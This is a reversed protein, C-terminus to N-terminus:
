RPARRPRGPSWRRATRSSGCWTSPRREAAAATRPRSQDGARPAEPRRPLPPPPADPAPEGRAGPDGAGTGAVPRRAARAHSFVLGAVVGAVDRDRGAIGGADLRREEM